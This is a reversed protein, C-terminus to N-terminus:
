QQELLKERSNSLMIKTICYYRGYKGNNFLVRNAYGISSLKIAIDRKSSVDYGGMKSLIEESSIKGVDKNGLLELMVDLIKILTRQNEERETYPPKDPIAKLAETLGKDIKEWPDNKYIYKM